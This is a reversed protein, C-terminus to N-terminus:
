KEEKEYGREGGCKRLGEWIDEGGFMKCRNSWM